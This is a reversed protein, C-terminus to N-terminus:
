NKGTLADNMMKKGRKCATGFSQFYCAREVYIRSKELDPKITREIGNKYLIAANLCQNAVLNKNLNKNVSKIASNCETEFQYLSKAQQNGLSEEKKEQQIEASSQPLNVPNSGALGPKALLIAMNVPKKCAKSSKKQKLKCMGAPVWYTPSDPTRFSGVAIHLMQASTKKGKKIEEENVLSALFCDGEQMTLGTNGPKALLRTMTEKYQDKGTKGSTLSQSAQYFEEGDAQSSWFLAANNLPKIGRCVLEINPGTMEGAKISQGSTVCCAVIVLFAYRLKSMCHM